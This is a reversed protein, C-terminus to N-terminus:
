PSACDIVRGAPRVGCRYLGHLTRSTGGTIGPYDIGSQPLTPLGNAPPSLTRFAVKSEVGHLLNQAVIENYDFTILASLHEVADLRPQCRQLRARLLPFLSM